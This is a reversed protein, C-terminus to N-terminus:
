LELFVGTKYGSSLCMYQTTQIVQGPRGIYKRWHLTTIYPTIHRLVWKQTCSVLIQSSKVVHVHEGFIFSNIENKYTIIIDHMKYNHQCMPGRWRLNAFFFWKKTVIGLRMVIRRKHFLYKQTTLKIARVFFVCVVSITLVTRM